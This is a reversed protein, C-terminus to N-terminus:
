SCGTPTYGYGHPRVAVDSSVSFTSRVLSLVNGSALPEAVVTCCDSAKLGIKSGLVDNWRCAEGHCTVIIKCAM